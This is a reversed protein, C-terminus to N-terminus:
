GEKLFYDQGVAVEVGRDHPQFDDVYQHHETFVDEAYSFFLFGLLFVSLLIGILVVIQRRTM